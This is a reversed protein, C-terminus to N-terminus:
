FREMGYCELDRYPRPWSTRALTSLKMATKEDPASFIDIYDYRGMIAYNAIWVIDLGANKIARELREEKQEIRLSAVFDETLRTAMIFLPMIEGM